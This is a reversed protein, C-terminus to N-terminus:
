KMLLMKRLDSFNESRIRYYYIGSTVLNGSNDRGDWVVSHFGLEMNKDILVRVEQGLINYIALHVDASNPLQFRITTEPNFPNPYNQELSFEEPINMEAMAPGHFVKLGQISIDELKYYYIQGPFVSRDVYSYTGNSNAPIMEGNIKSFNGDVRNSRFVNFGLNDQESTTRWALEVGQGSRAVGATFFELEVKTIVSISWTKPVAEKGDSVFAVIEEYGNYEPPSFYNYIAGAAVNQGNKTWFITIQDGDPDMANISFSVMNGQTITTDPQIPTYGVIVPKRNVDLVTIETSDKASGGRDDLVEFVVSYVGAQDYAPTWNFTYNNVGTENFSAGEPKNFIKFELPDSNPDLASVDFQINENEDVSDASLGVVMNPIDNLVSVADFEVYSGSIGSAVALIRINDPQTGLQLTVQAVGDGNTHVKGDGNIFADGQTLVYTVLLNAVPNGFQDTVKTKLPEPLTKEVTGTQNNGSELSFSVGSGPQTTVQFSVPSGELNIATAHVASTGSTTGHTFTAQAVGDAGSVSPQQSTITLDGSIVEFTVAFGNVVNNFDDLVKVKLPSGSSQVPGTQNDGSHLVIKKALSNSAEAFFTIPSGDLGTGVASAINQGTSPGLVFVASAEGYANTLAPQPPNMSGDGFAASFSVPFNRVPDDNGDLAKVVLAQPLPEGATGIQNNGSVYLLKTANNDVGNASFLVPSGVLNGSRAEIFNSGPNGGLEFHVEAHGNEDTVIPQSELIHGGGSKVEFFVPVGSVPNDFNDTVIIQLPDSLFTGINRTQENGANRLLRDAVGAVFAIQDTTNLPINDSTNTVTVTKSGAQISAVSGSTEGNANTPSSPQNIFNQSGSVAIQVLKGSIPNGFRDVLRISVNSVSTGDATVPGTATITSSDPDTAGPNASTTFTIPSNQLPNVGDGTSAEVTNNNTGANIGLILNVQAIGSGNTNVIKTRVTDEALINGTQIEFYGGGSTVAFTVPHDAVGNDLSDSVQVRLSSSLMEGVVGTQSDGGSLAVKTANSAVGTAVFTVPSGSLDDFGDNAMAHVVNIDQGVMSGLKLIVEAIGGTNTVKVVETLDVNELTGGGSIVKFTVPVNAVPADQADVVRIRLPSTLVSTVVASQSDGSVMEISTASYKASASFVIPSNTLPNQGNTATAHVINNLEGAVPGPWLRASAFGNEDTQVSIVSEVDGNITGNGAQVAFQVIHGAIANNQADMVKVVFDEDLPQGVFGPPQADGSVKVIKSANGANASAVFNMPSGSLGAAEATVKNNFQGALPGLVLFASAHGSGDTSITAEQEGTVFHGGGEIVTYTIMVNPVNNGYQDMVSVVFASDMTQSVTGTLSDGSVKVLNVPTDPNVAANFVIPSGALGQVVASVQQPGSVTDLIWHVQAEGNAQTPVPQAEVFSGNGESTTYTVDIGEMPNDQADVIKVILPLSLQTGATGTQNNGSVLSINSPVGNDATATFIIEAPSTGPCSAKIRNLSVFTGLTYTVSAFGGGDTIVPQSETIVGGGELIEFTVEAGEVPNGHIDTVKVIFPEALLEGAGATQSDGSIQEITVPVDAVGTATFEVEKGPLISATAKVRNTGLNGGLTLYAIADGTGNTIYGGAPETGAPLYSPNSTILIKDIRSFKERAYIQFTHAGADLNYLVVGANRDEVKEWVWQGFSGEAIDWVTTDVQDDMLIRFSNEEGSPAYVRGWVYYNGAVPISFDIDAHGQKQISSLIYRNGSASSDVVSVMPATLEGNEVDIRINGDQTNKDMTGGGEIVSFDVEVNEVPNGNLDTVRAIFPFALEAGVVGEQFDGSIKVIKDPDGPESLVSFDDINNNRDGHMMVGTYLETTVDPDIFKSGDSIVGYSVGNIIGEFHNGTVDSTITVKFIDGAVADPLSIPGTGVQPGPAGNVVRFCYLQDKSPRYWIMYGNANITPSDLMVAMAVNEIDQDTSALGYKFGVEGPSIRGKYVALFGAGAGDTWGALTDTNSLEDGVITIDPHVVWDPGLETRNFTDVFTLSELTEVVLNSSLSSGNGSEDFSKIAIYYNTNAFLGPINISETSGAPRPPSTPILTANSFNGDNMPATSYRLEYLSALGSSGDDGPATWTVTVSTAFVDSAELDTITAPPSTDGQKFISFDDVDNNIGDRLILGAYQRQATIFSKDDHSLRLNFQDNVYIDFHHSTEDSFMRAEIRDGPQPFPLNSDMIMILDSPEGNIIKVLRVKNSVGIWLLYGRVTSIDHAQNLKLAFGGEQMGNQDANDAWAFSVRSPNEQGKYIAMNWDGVTSVNSLKNGSVVLGADTFWTSGLSSRNFNESFYEDLSRSENLVNLIANFIVQAMLAYGDNNPHVTDFLYDAIHNPNTKFVENNGVYFINYGAAQKQYFLDEILSNLNDNTADESDNRPILSSLLIVIDSDFSDIKDIISEIDGITGNSGSNPDDNSIDNTGIHLVVIKPQYTNLRSTVIGDIEDARWGPHGEHDVDFNSSNGDQLSGVFDFDIGAAILLNYLDDRFGGVPASGRVGETESDGLLMIKKTQANGTVATLVISTVAIWILWMRKM